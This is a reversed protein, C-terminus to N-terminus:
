LLARKGLTLEARGIVTGRTLCCSKLYHDRLNDICIRMRVKKQPFATGAQVYVKFGERYALLKPKNRRYIDISEM